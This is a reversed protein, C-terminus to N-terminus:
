QDEECPYLENIIDARHLILLSRYWMRQSIRGYPTLVNTQKVLDEDDYLLSTQSDIADDITALLYNSLQRNLIYRREWRTPSSLIKQATPLVFDLGGKDYLQSIDM